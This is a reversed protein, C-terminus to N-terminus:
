TICTTWPVLGRLHRTRVSYYPVTIVVVRSRRLLRGAYGIPADIPRHVRPQGLALLNTRRKGSAIIMVVVVFFLTRAPLALVIVIVVVVLLVVASVM